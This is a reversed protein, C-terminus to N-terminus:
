ANAGGHAPTTPLIWRRLLSCGWSITLMAILVAGNMAIRPVPSYYILRGPHLHQMTYQTALAIAALACAFAAAGAMVIPVLVLATKRWTRFYFSVVVLVVATVACAFSLWPVYLFAATNLVLLASALQVIRDRVGFRVILYPVGVWLTVTVATLGPGASILLPMLHDRWAGPMHRLWFEMGSALLQFAAFSCAFAVPTRWGLRVLARLYEGVFWVWGRTAAMEALDGYIATARERGAFIALVTEAFPRKRM